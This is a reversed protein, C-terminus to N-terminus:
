YYHRQLRLPPESELIIERRPYVEGTVLSLDRWQIVAIALVGGQVEGTVVLQLNRELETEFIHAQMSHGNDLILSQRLWGESDRIGYGSHLVEIRLVEGTGTHISM